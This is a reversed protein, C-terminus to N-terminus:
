YLVGCVSVGGSIKHMKLIATAFEVVDSFHSTQVAVNVSELLNQAVQPASSSSSISASNQTASAWLAVCFLLRLVVSRLM